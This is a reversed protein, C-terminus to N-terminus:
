PALLEKKLLKYFAQREQTSLAVLPPVMARWTAGRRMEMVLKAAPIFALGNLARSFADLKHLHAKEPREYIARILEPYLNAVGGISGAGGYQVAEGIQSEKGVFVQFGPFRTLILKTLALDGESEKLGIVIEPFQARLTEIVPLTIPVGTMRPFHYLLVRFNPHAVRRIIERYYAIVGEEEINKYYSPPSILLAASGHKLAAQSLEVTDLIGSSGNGLIIQRPNVESLLKELADIREGVSFSPGEGTTGFLAIGHCGREILDKCHWALEEHNIRLDEYLPILTAAYIGPSIQKM